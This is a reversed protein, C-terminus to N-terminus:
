VGLELSLLGRLEEQVKQPAKSADLSVSKAWGSLAELIADREREYLNIRGRIVDPSDDPRQILTSGDEDCIGETKPPSFKVHYIKGIKPNIRRGSLREVVEEASVKFELVLVKGLSKINKCFGQLWESQPRNRPYGDLVVINPAKERIIKTVQSDFVQNTVPDSVLNGSNITSKIAEGLPSGSGMEARFLDGTSIHVCNKLTNALLKAQTGKGSGPPGVFVLFNIIGSM